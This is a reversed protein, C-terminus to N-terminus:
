TLYKPGKPGWSTFALRASAPKPLRCLVFRTVVLVVSVVGVLVVRAERLSMCGMRLGATTQFCQSVGSVTQRLSLRGVWVFESVLAVPLWGLQLSLEVTWSHWM